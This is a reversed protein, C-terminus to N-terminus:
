VFQENKSDGKNRSIVGESELLRVVAIVQQQAEEVDRIKIAGLGEMDELLMAAGRQSLGKMLHTRLEEGAGKLAIMLQRRDARSLLERIGNADISMLDDFVFMKQRIQEALESHGEGIQQLLEDCQATEMQNCIAAMSRAGDSSERRVESLPKLKMGVAKALKEVVVNSIPELKAVRVAVDTRLEPEMLSLVAASQAPGLRSLILAVTQPHESRVFRALTGAEVRHLHEHFPSPHGPEPPLREIHKKSGDPGFAHTLVRRAYDPGGHGSQLADSVAEQFEELVAHSQALPVSPLTAIAASVREIEEDSLHKLLSASADDGLTVLLAAIKQAGALAGAVAPTAM